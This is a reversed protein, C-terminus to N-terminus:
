PLAVNPFADRRLVLVLTKVNPFACYKEKADNELKTVFTLPENYTCRPQPRCAHATFLLATESTNIQVTYLLLPCGCTGSVAAM